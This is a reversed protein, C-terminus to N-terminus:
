VILFFYKKTMLSLFKGKLSDDDANKFKNSILNLPFLKAAAKEEAIQIKEAKVNKKLAASNGNSTENTSKTTKIETNTTRSENRIRTIRAM